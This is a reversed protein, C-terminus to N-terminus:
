RTRARRHQRLPFGRPPPSHRDEHRSRDGRPPDVSPDEAPLRRDNKLRETEGFGLQAERENTIGLDPPQVTGIAALIPRGVHQREREAFALEAADCAPEAVDDDRELRCLALPALVAQRKGLFHVPEQDVADEMQGAVVVFRRRGLGPAHLALLPLHQSPDRFPTHLFFRSRLPARLSSSLSQMSETPSIRSLSPSRSFRM